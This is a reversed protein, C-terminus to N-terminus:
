RREVELARDLAKRANSLRWKITGSPAGLIRGIEAIPREEVYHMVLLSRADADLHDFAVRIAEVEGVREPGGTAFADSEGDAAEVEIEGFASGVTSACCGVAPTSSSRPSGPTSGTGNASAPSSAGRSSM